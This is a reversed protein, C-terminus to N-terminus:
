CQRAYGSLATNPRSLLWVEFQRLEDAHASCLEMLAAAQKEIQARQADMGRQM